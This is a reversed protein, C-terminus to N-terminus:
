SETKRAPLVRAPTGFVTQNAEVSNLIVSNAGVTVHDGIRIGGLVKCGAGLVVNNGIQPRLAPDFKMDPQKSGLTVGQFITANSGVQYAGMVTGVPHAFFIGPGVQCKPTVELGFLVLNVYTLLNPFIPIGALMAARSTRCLVNPLFRFHLLRGLFGMFNPRRNPNGELEYQRALDSYLLEKLQSM